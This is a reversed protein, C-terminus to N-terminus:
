RFGRGVLRPLGHTLAAQDIPHSRGRRQAESQSCGGEANLWSQADISFFLLAM